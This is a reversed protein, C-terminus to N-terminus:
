SVRMLEESDAQWIGPSRGRSVGVGEGDHPDPAPAIQMPRMALRELSTRADEFGAAMKLPVLVSWCRLMPLILSWVQEMNRWAVDQFCM